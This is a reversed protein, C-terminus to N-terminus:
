ILFVMAATFFIAFSEAFLRIDGDRLFLPQRARTRGLAQRLDGQWDQPAALRAIQTQRAGHARLRGRIDIHDDSDM